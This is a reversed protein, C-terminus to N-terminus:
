ASRCCISSHSFAQDDAVSRWHDIQRLNAVQLKEVRKLPQYANRRAGTIRSRRVQARNQILGLRSRNMKSSAPSVSHNEWKVVSQGAGLGGGRNGAM